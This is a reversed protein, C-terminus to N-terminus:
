VHPISAANDQAGDTFWLLDLQGKLVTNRWGLVQTALGRLVAALAGGQLTPAVPTTVVFLVRDTTADLAFMGQLEGMWLTQLSLLAEFVQLRQGPAPAGVELILQLGAPASTTLLLEVDVGDVTAPFGAGLAGTDKLGLATSTDLCLQEFQKQNM